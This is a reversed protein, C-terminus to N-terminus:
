DTKVANLAARGLYMRDAYLRFEYHGEKPITVPLNFVLDWTLLRDQIEGKLTGEGIVKDDEIHVMEIKFDYNGHADAIRAFVTMPRGMPFSKSNAQDFVGILSKQMTDKDTIIRECLLMALLVPLPRRPSDQSEEPM